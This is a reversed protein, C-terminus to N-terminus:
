VVYEVAFKWPGGTTEAGSTSKTATISLDGNWPTAELNPLSSMQVIATVTGNTKVDVSGTSITSGAQNVNIAVSASTTADSATSGYVRVSLISTSGPLVVKQVAGSETRAVQFVKVLHDKGPPTQATVQLPTVDLQKFGM